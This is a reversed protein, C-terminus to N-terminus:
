YREEPGQTDKVEDEGVLEVRTQQHTFYNQTHKKKNKLCKMLM